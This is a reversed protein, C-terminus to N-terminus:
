TTYLIYAYPLGDYGQIRDDDDNDDEDEDEEEEEEEEEEEAWGRM